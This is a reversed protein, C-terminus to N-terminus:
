PRRGGTGQASLYDALSLVPRDDPRPRSANPRQPASVDLRIEIRGIEIVVPALGPVDAPGQVPGPVAAALPAPRAETQLPGTPAVPLATAVAPIAEEPGAPEVPSAPDPLAVPKAPAPAAAAVPPQPSTVRVPQDAAEVTAPRGVPPEQAAPVPRRADAAPRSVQPPAPRGPIDGPPDPPAKEALRQELPSREEVTSAERAPVTRDLGSVAASAPAAEAEGAIVDLGSTATAETLGEPWDEYLSRPRPEAVPGTAMDALGMGAARSLAQLYPSM